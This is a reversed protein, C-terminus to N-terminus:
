FCATDIKERKLQCRLRRFDTNQFADKKCFLCQNHMCLKTYLVELSTLIEENILVMFFSNQNKEQFPQKTFAIPFKKGLTQVQYFCELPQSFEQCNHLGEVKDQTQM